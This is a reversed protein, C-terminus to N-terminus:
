RCTCGPAASTIPGTSIQVGYATIRAKDLRAARYKRRTEVFYFRFYRFASPRLYLGNGRVSRVIRSYIDPEVLGPAPDFVPVYPSGASKWIGHNSNDGDM